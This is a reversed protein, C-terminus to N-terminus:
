DDHTTGKNEPKCFPCAIYRREGEKGYILAGGGPRGCAPCVKGSTYQQECVQCMQVLVRGGSKLFNWVECDTWQPGGDSWNM